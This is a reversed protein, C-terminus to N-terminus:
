VEPRDLCYHCTQWHQIAKSEVPTAETKEMTETIQVQPKEVASSIMSKRIVIIYPVFFIATVMQANIRWFTQTKSNRLTCAESFGWITGGAGFVELVLMASFREIHELSAPLKELVKAGRLFDGIQICYRVFFVLRFVAACPRWYYVTEPNCFTCIESYGWIAGGGGLVELILNASFIKVLSAFNNTGLGNPEHMLQLVLCIFFIVGFPLAIARWLNQNGEHCLTLAEAVGWIAGVGGFVELVLKLVFFQLLEVVKM